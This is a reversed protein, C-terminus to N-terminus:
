KLEQMNSPKHKDHLYNKLSVWVKEIQNLDLSEALSNWWNVWKGCFLKSTVVPINPTMIKICGTDMLTTSESSLSLSASLINGYRTANMDM